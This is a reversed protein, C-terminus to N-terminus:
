WNNRIQEFLMTSAMKGMEFDPQNVTTLAPEFVASIPENNFGVFFPNQIEPNKKVINQLQKEVDKDLNEETNTNM